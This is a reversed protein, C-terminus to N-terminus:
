SEITEKIKKSNKIAKFAEIIMWIELIMIIIGIVFLLWDSNGAYKIINYVMGWGTMLIMFIMPILTYVIPKKKKALYVTIVLLALGALLQNTAGFLPWLIMAGAGGPKALALLLATIVAFLTAGTKNAIPKINWGEALESVVYRQIRTATDLTTAAFSVIFVALITKAFEGSIGIHSIFSAGGDVFAGLKAGLGSASAWDAYRQTWAAADGLGATCAVIVLMALAGELLMGGYGITLSDEEENLQKSSTGSSVLSHFGSIAGCAITIFLFPLIPPAGKVATNIAPASITPHAFLLGIILLAMAVLLEHSNIYDRPQLLTQVPLISAIFAYILLIFVWVLIEQLGFIEPIHFDNIYVAGVWITFYMLIIAIISLWKVNMNKKYVLYGMLLAIPIEMWVPFVSAPYMIFLKGIIMAFIAIVILLLFFIVLLFLVRSTPSVIDKTVDGLSKGKKRSSIVLAGFDHVAGMFISGIFVWLVAPVWGWIVGIAPGVIPGTGAISTFHHGFLISKRTPVYDVGDNVIHAPTKNKNSLEFLKRGLFKGYTKYAIIFGFYTLVILLLSNM